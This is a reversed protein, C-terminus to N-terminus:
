KSLDAGEIEGWVLAELMSCALVFLWARIGGDVPPLNEEVIAVEVDSKGDTASCRAKTNDSSVSASYEKLEVFGSGLDQTEDPCAPSM